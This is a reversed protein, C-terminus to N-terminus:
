GRAEADELVEIFEIDTMPVFIPGGSFEDGVDNARGRLLIWSDCYGAVAYHHWDCKRDHWQVFVDLGFLPHTAGQTWNM